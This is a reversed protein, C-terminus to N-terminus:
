HGADLGLDASRGPVVSVLSPGGLRLAVGAGRAASDLRLRFDSGYVLGPRVFGPDRNTLLHSGWRVGSQIAGLPPSGATLDHDWTDPGAAYSDLLGTEGPRAVAIDDLFIVNQSFAASLEGAPRQLKADKLDHYAVNHVVVVNRSKFVHIGRGGNDFTVNGEILTAARYPPAKSGPQQHDFDDIIIGNGDTTRGDSHSVADDVFVNMNDYVVNGRIVNHFGARDDAADAQYISIGSCQWPARRANGFVRNAEIVLYDTEVAAIGGCASDRAVNHAVRVHHNSKGLAIASGWGYSHAELGEVDLYSGTLSVADGEAEILARGEGIVTIPRDPLGSASLTLPERYRGARVVLRDGPRLEATAHKLTRWPRAASGAQDDRGGYASVYFTASQAASALVTLLLAVAGRLAVVVRAM